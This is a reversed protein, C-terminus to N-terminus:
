SNAVPFRRAGPSKSPPLLPATRTSSLSPKSMWCFLPSFYPGRKQRAGTAPEPRHSPCSCAFRGTGTLPRATRGAPSHDRLLRPPPHSHSPAPARCSGPAAGLPHRKGPCGPLRHRRRPHGGDGPGHDRLRLDLRGTATRAREVPRAVGCRAVVGATRCRRQWGRHHNSRGLSAAMAMRLGRRRVRSNRSSSLVVGALYTSSILNSM